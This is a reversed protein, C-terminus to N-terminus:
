YKFCSIIHDNIIGIAQLYAYITISGIFKFGKQKLDKSVTDSLASTVPIQELNQWHNKIVM